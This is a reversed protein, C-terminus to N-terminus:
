WGWSCIEEKEMYIKGVIVVDMNLKDEWNVYVKRSEDIGEICLWGKYWFFFLQSVGGYYM